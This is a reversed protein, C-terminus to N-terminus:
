GRSKKEAAALDSVAKRKQAANYHRDTNPEKGLVKSGFLKKDARAALGTQSDMEKTRDSQNERRRQRSAAGSIDARTTSRMREVNSRANLLDRRGQAAQQPTRGSPLKGKRYDVYAEDIIEDRWEESMNVMIAEATEITDAYGEDLLHSLVIDYIDVEETKFIGRPKKAIKKGLENGLYAAAIGTGVTAGPDLKNKKAPAPRVEAPPQPPQTYQAEGVYEENSKYQMPSDKKVRDNFPKGKSMALQDQRRMTDNYPKRMDASKRARRNVGGSSTISDHKSEDVEQAQPANVQQYAEYLGRLEKPDM